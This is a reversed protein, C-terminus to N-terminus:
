PVRVNAITTNGDADQLLLSIIQGTHLGRLLAQAERGSRVKHQNIALIKRGVGIGKRYAASFPSVNAVVAGGADDFGLDHALKPTLEEVQIGIRGAGQLARAHKPEDDILPLPAQSLKIRFDMEVGYRMVHLAVLEGPRHEAILRQLQGVQEINTGDVTLIVDGLALGGQKAPSDDNFGEVYVGTIQKLKYIEADEQSVDKISVGLM